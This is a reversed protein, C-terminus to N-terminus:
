SVWASYAVTGNVGIAAVQYEYAVGSVATFDDYNAGVPIQTAVQAVTTTPSGAERRWIDNYALAPKVDIAITMAASVQATGGTVTFSSGTINAATTQIVYDWVNLAGSGLTSEKEGIETMGALAAVGTAAGDQKWGVVLVTQNPNTITLSPYTINQASGNVVSASLVTGLTNMGAGRFTAIQAITDAGAAGGTFTVTPATDGTVFYRAFVRRNNVSALATWGAPLNVTGTGTNRISAYCVMMDGVITSAHIGPSLSANNASVATGAGVFTSVGGVPNSPAIRIVGSAPIPTATVTPIAPPTYAVTFAVVAPTSALGEYNKTTLTLSCSSGDALDMPVTFSNSTSDTIWGSDYTASGSLQVRYASQTLVTWTATVRKSSISSLPATLTPNDKASPVVVMPASYVSQLASSDWTKVKYSYNPDSDVGWGTALTVSNLSSTNQVEAVQWTSDSARWYALAGGGIQRSLAFASQTDGPDLDSFTWTLTLAQNINGAAGNIPSVWTPANPAVSFAGQAFSKLTNPSGSQEMVIDHTYGGPVRYISRRVSWNTATLAATADVVSWAGFTGTAYSFDVWYLVSNTTGTAFVRVFNVAYNAQCSTIVGQPHTPTVVSDTLTNARNRRLLSVTSTANPNKIAMIFYPHNSTGTFVGPQVAQANNHDFIRTERSPMVWHDGVWAGKVLFTSNYGFTIWLNPAAASATKSDGNQEIDVSPKNPNTGPQYYWRNGYFTGSNDLQKSTTFTTGKVGYLFVGYNGVGDRYGCCIAVRYSTFGSTYLVVMLDMGQHYAGASGGNGPAGCLLEAEWTYTTVSLNIRRYYIRDQSSENTRYSWHLYGKNDIFINSWEVINARTLGSGQVVWTTGVDSSRYLQYNGSSDVILTWLSGDLPNVDIKQGNFTSFVGTATTTTITGM